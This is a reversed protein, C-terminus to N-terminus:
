KPRFYRTAALLCRPACPAHRATAGMARTTIRWIGRQDAPEAQANSVAHQLCSLRLEHRARTVEYRDDFREVIELAVLRAPEIADGRRHRAREIEAETRPRDRVFRRGGIASPHVSEHVDALRRGTSATGDNARHSRLGVHDRRATPEQALDQRGSPRAREFRQSGRADGVDERYAEEPSSSASSSTCPSSVSKSVSESVSCASLLFLASFGILIRLRM